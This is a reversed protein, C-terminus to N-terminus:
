STAQVVMEISLENGFFFVLFFLVVFCVFFGRFILIVMKM